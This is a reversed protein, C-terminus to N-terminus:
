RQAQRRKELVYEFCQRNRSRHKKLREKGKWRRRRNSGVVIYETEEYYSLRVFRRRPEFKM